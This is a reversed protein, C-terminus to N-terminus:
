LNYIRESIEPRDRSETGRASGVRKYGVEIRNKRGGLIRILDGCGYGISRDDPSRDIGVTHSNAAVGKWRLITDDVLKSNDSLPAWKCKGVPWKFRQGLGDFRDGIVEGFIESITENGSGIQM